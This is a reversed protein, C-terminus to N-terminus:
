AKIEHAAAWLFAALERAIATVVVNQHKGRARMRRFKKCLRLQAKWAIARIAPDIDGARREIIASVKAPHRYAWAAEILATRAFKNGTKTIAGQRRTGGSSHESPVLGFWAMLQRPEPFRRLDGVEAVVTYAVREQVGRFATFAHALNHGSWNPAHEALAAELRARRAERESISDVLEQFVLQQVPDPLVLQSLWRRHAATWTAKGTYRIDNRLLFGKLRQKAKTIDRTSQAVSRILDRFAEQEPTPVRVFSLTGAKLALALGRADRRDCKIRVGPRKPVLSPAVVMCDEGRKRLFRELWFGCPGAEYVIRLPGRGRLQKLLRDLAYQQTAVTGVDHVEAGTEGAVVAVTISDKHVDLGVYQTYGKAM